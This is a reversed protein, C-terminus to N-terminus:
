RAGAGIDVWVPRHDSAATVDRPDLRIDPHPLPEIGPTAFVVDLLRRPAAAPFTPAAPSILRMPNAILQWARGDAQENLDGCLIAEGGGTLRLIQRAHAAREQPKLSLHVSAITIPERGPIAVQAVAFGRTRQPFPVALRVHQSRVVRVRLSTFITTGGSGRHQGPWFMGCQAAFDAVRQAALLRRPVEQLCLVDPDIARVVRAAVARDDLFDRTNYSAIRIHPVEPM